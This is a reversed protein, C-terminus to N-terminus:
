QVQQPSVTKGGMPGNLEKLKQYLVERAEIDGTVLRRGKSGMRRLERYSLGVEAQERKIIFYPLCHELLVAAREDFVRWSHCIKNCKTRQSLSQSFYVTGTFTRSLWEMLRLDTNAVVLTLVFQPCKTGTKVATRQIFVTGEGDIFAALRAWDIACAKAVAVDFEERSTNPQPM